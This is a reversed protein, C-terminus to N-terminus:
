DTKLDERPKTMEGQATLASQFVAPAGLSGKAPLHRMFRVMRWMQEDSLAGEWGPMGTFRIGNEVIWKLQGDSYEQTDGEGLDPVPPSLRGAFPVGTAHGDLGHCVQCHRQFDEAGLKVVEPKDPLPNRWAKGGITVGKATRAAATELRGPAQVKCSALVLSGAVALILIMRKKM